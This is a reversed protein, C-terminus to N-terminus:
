HGDSIILSTDVPFSTHSVHWTGCGDYYIYYVGSVEHVEEEEACM